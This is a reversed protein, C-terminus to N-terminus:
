RKSKVPWRACLRCSARGYEPVSVRAGQTGINIAAVIQGQSRLPVAISRLGPELEQDVIAFGKEAVREIVELLTTAEIQTKETRAILSTRRLYSQREERGRGALRVPGM